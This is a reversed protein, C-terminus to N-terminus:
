YPTFRPTKLEKRHLRRYYQIAFRHSEQDIQLILNRVAPPLKKIKVAGKETTSLIHDGIHKENKTLAIVPIENPIATKAASLQGKGGDIIILDPFKWERHGFRRTLIEKLMGADNPTATLKIKFKRYENKDPQGDAFVIMAGTAFKGQINSVDYGEIRIPLAGLKLARKLEIISKEGKRNKLEMEKIVKANEFFIRMKELQTRIRIADEFNGNRAEASMEKELKKVLFSKQGGLVAKVAVINKRYLKKEESTAEKKLCCFGPCNGIHYNLCYNNHKQKCTCYLFIKRLLKLTVRLAAGDTFPGDKALAESPPGKPQHTIFIRPFSEKTFVVYFYQKGDRLMINFPPRYKKILQSELILAEIESDTEQWDVRAADEIMKSIRPDKQGSFYSKIRNQM